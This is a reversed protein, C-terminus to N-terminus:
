SLVRTKLSWRQCLCVSHSSTCVPTHASKAECLEDTLKKVEEELASKTRELAATREADVKSDGLQQKLHSIVVEM